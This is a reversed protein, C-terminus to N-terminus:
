RIIDSIVPSVLFPSSNCVWDYPPQSMAQEVCSRTKADVLETGLTLDCSIIMDNEDWKLYQNTETVEAADLAELSTPVLVWLHYSPSGSVVTKDQYRYYSM